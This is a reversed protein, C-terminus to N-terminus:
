FGCWLRQARVEYDGARLGATELLYRAEGDRVAVQRPLRGSADFAVDDGLDTQLRLTISEGRVFAHRADAFRADAAAALGCSGLVLALTGAHLSGPGMRGDGFRRVLRLGTRM